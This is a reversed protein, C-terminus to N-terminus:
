DPNPTSTERSNAIIWDEIMQAIVRQGVQNPHIDDRYPQEGARRAQEFSPGLQIVSVGTARGAAAIANHGPKLHDMTENRELHQMLAVKAGSQQGLAILDHVANLSALVAPDNPDPGSFAELPEPGSGGLASPLYRPLYRGIAEQLAFLPKHTPMDAPLPSFTPVDAWDHSSLVLIVIDADFLGFKKVYALMNPPGWSAASINGVVVPRNGIRPPLDRRIIETAIDRQDTQAGGNVVSDGIVLVRLENSSSKHEPFDGSRMSWRNIAITNGFRHYVHSPQYLYEIQPDTMLLPPDGLGLRYRCFLEGAVALVIFALLLRLAWRRLRHPKRIAQIPTSEANM